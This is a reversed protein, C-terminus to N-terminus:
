TNQCGNSQLAPQRVTAQFQALTTLNDRKNYNQTCQAREKHPDDREQPSSLGGIRRFCCGQQKDTWLFTSGKSPKSLIDAGIINDQGRGAQTHKDGALGACTGKITM